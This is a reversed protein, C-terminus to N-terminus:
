KGSISIVLPRRGINPEDDFLLYGGVGAAILAASGVGVYIWTYDSKSEEAPSSLKLPKLLVDVIPTPQNRELKFSSGNVIYKGYPLYLSVPLRVGKALQQVARTMAERRERNIFKRKRSLVIVGEEQSNASEFRVLGYTNLWQDYLETLFEKDKADQTLRRARRLASLAATINHLKYNVKALAIFIRSDQQGEDSESLRNLENLAPLYLKNNIYLRVQDLKQEYSREPVTIDRAETESILLPGSVLIGM